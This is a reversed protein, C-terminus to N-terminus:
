VELCGAGLRTARPSEVMLGRTWARAKGAKSVATRSRWGYAGSDQTRTEMEGAESGKLNMGVDETGLGKTRVKIEWNVAMAGLGKWVAVLNETGAEREEARARRTQLRM